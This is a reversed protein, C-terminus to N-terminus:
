HLINTVFAHLKSSTVQFDRQRVEGRGQLPGEPALRRLVSRERHTQLRVTPGEQRQRGHLPGALHGPSQDRSSRRLVATPPNSLLLM